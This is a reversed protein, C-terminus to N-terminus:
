VYQRLLDRLKGAHEEILEPTAGDLEDVLWSSM